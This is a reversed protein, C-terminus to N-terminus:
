KHNFVAPILPKEDQLINWWCRQLIVTVSDKSHWLTSNHPPSKRVLLTVPLSMSLPKWRIFCPYIFLWTRGPKKVEHQWHDPTRHAPLSPPKWLPGSNSWGRPLTNGCLIARVCHPWRQSPQRISVPLISSAAPLTTHVRSCLTCLTREVYTAM